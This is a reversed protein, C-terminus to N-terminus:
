SEGSRRLAGGEGQRQLDGPRRLAEGDEWDTRETWHSWDGAFHVEPVLAVGHRAEVERQVAEILGRLDDATAEGLNVLFNAHKDSVVAGGIRRGKLGSAEILRGAHDGPPNRFTSGCTPMDVPQTRARYALHEAVLERSRVPDDGALAFTAAAVVAGEPLACTRYAMRLESAALRGDAGDRLVLDVEVLRDSVEGLAAGANMRVAGGVTGPIGAFLELGTWGAREARGMLVALKLGGGLVVRGEGATSGALDGTLRVVLGRIGRDSVLLNSANGLVFLPTGTRHAIRAIEALTRRNPAEVYADAPGGARWWTRNRLPADERFSIGAARLAAAAEARLPM